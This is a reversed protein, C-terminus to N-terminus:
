QQTKITMKWKMFMLRGRKENFVDDVSLRRRKENKVDYFCNYFYNHFFNAHGTAMQEFQNTSHTFFFTSFSFLFSSHINKRTNEKDFYVENKNIKDHCVTAGVVAFYIIKEDKEEVFIFKDIEEKM